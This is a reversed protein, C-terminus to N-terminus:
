EPVLREDVTVRDRDILLRVHHRVLQRGQRFIRPVRAANVYSTGDRELRWHRWGGGKLQHHMHGAVVARVRKGGARAHEIARQLDVDGQDGQQPRFDCGWIDDRRDGLGTPGNHGLFLLDDHTSADVLAKLREASSHHDAVGFRDSLHRRFHFARGGMAHPRAAIVTLAVDDAEFDHSSYGCMPVPSLAQQLAHCRATQGTELWRILGAKGLAEAGLHPLSVGDHNGPLLLTPKRMRAIRRAVALGDDLYGALDGVFLVLDYDSGDFWRVDSDSWREHVDGIVAIRM